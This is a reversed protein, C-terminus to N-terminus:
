TNVTDCVLTKELLMRGADLRDARGSEDLWGTSM